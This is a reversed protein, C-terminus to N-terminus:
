EVAISDTPCDYIARELDGRRREDLETELLVVLGDEDLAFVDPAALVCNGYGRCSDRNVLIRLKESM